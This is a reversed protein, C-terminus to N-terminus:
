ECEIHGELFFHEAKNHAVIDCFNEVGKIVYEISSFCEKLIYNKVEFYNQSSLWSFLEEPTNFEICKKFRDGYYVRHLNPLHEVCVLCDWINYLMYTNCRIAQHKKWPENEYSEWVIEPNKFDVLDYLEYGEFFSYITFMGM